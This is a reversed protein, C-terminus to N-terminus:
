RLSNEKKAKRYRLITRVIGAIGGVLFLLTFGILGYRGVTGQSGDFIGGAIHFAIGLLVLSALFDIVLREALSFSLMRRKEM